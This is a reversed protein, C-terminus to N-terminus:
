RTRVPLVLRTGEGDRRTVIVPSMAGNFKMVVEDTEITSLADRLYESNFAINLADNGQCDCDIEAEYDAMESNGSLKMTHGSIVLKVLKETNIIAGANKLADLVDLRKVLCETGFTTPVVKTVDVYEGSLLGCKLTVFPSRVMVAKGDTILELQEEDGVSSAVLALFGGPILMSVEDGGCGAVERALRFGDLATMTMRTGDAEVFAGTLVIRTQDVAIAHKIQECMRAFTGAQVTVRKGQVMDLEPVRTKLIPIRTRGAGRIVLAQGDATLDLDVNKTAVISALTSGDVCFSDFEECMLPIIVSAAFNGNTGRLTIGETGHGIEVSSLKQDKPNICKKIVRMAANLDAGHVKINM